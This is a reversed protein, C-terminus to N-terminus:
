PLAVWFASYRAWGFQGVVHRPGLSFVMPAETTSPTPAQTSKIAEVAGDHGSYIGGPGISKNPRTGIVSVM